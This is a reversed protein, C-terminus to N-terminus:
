QEGESFGHPAVQRLARDLFFMSDDNLRRMYEPDVGEADDPVTKFSFQRKLATVTETAQEDDMADFQSRLIANLLFEMAQLRAAMQMEFDTM